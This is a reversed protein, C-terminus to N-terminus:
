LFVDTGFNRKEYTTPQRMTHMPTDVGGGGMFFFVGETEQWAGRLDVFQGLGGKKLCYKQKYVKKTM